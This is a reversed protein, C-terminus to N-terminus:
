TVCGALNQLRQLQVFAQQVARVYLKSKRAFHNIKTSIKRSELRIYAYISALFHNTQTTRTKTPSKALSANQKLSQHYCEVNWRKQDITTMHQYSRNTDSSVLSLIGTSGDENTFVQKALFLPFDVDEIWIERVQNEEMSRTDVRAYLISDDVILVGEDNEIERVLPKVRLWLDKATQAPSALM